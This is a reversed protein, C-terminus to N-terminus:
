CCFYFIFFHLVHAHFYYCLMSFYYVLWLKEYYIRKYHNYVAVSLVKKAREQGIVHKDLGKCIEKPTPFTGGMNSGGWCWDKSNGSDGSSAAGGGGGGGGGGSVDYNGPRVVIGGGSWVEPPDVFSSVLVRYATVDYPVHNPNQNSDEILTTSTSATTTNNNSSKHIFDGGRLSLSKFSTFHYPTNILPSRPPSHSHGAHTYNFAFYRLQSLALTAKEKSPKSRFAAAAAM